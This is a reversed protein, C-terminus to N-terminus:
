LQQSKLFQRCAQWVWFWWVGCTKSRDVKLQAFNNSWDGWNWIELDHFREYPHSHSQADMDVDMGLNMDANMDDRWIVDVDIDVWTAAQFSSCSPGQLSPLKVMVLELSSESPKSPGKVGPISSHKFQLEWNLSYFSPVLCWNRLAKVHKSRGLASFRFRSIAHAHAM